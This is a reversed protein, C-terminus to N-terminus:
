LGYMTVANQTTVRCVREVSVGQRSAVEVAVEFACSPRSFPRKDGAPVFYPADTELLLRQLPVREALQRFPERGRTIAATLGVYANPFARLWQQAVEWTEAFCHFHVRWDRPLFATLDAYADRCHVVVPRRLEVALRLLRVFTTRQRWRVGESPHQSYDLGIEGVARVKPHRLLGRLMNFAQDDLEDAAKPHCGVAGFVRSSFLFTRFTSQHQRLWGLDCFNAVCAMLNQPSRVFEELFEGVCLRTRQRLLLRDLHCHADVFRPQETPRVVVSRVAPTARSGTSVSRQVPASVTLAPFRPEPVVATASSASSAPTVAAHVPASPLSSRSSGASSSPSVASTPPGLQVVVSSDCLAVVRSDSVAPRPEASSDVSSPQSSPFGGM